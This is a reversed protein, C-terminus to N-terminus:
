IAHFLEEKDNEITILMQRAKELQRQQAQHMDNTSGAFQRRAWREPLFENLLIMCWRIGILPYLLKLRFTFEPDGSFIDLCGSLFKKKLDMSLDMGPHLLFDSVLRVPDDWGFYEFDLFVVSGDPKKLANHFGFDSPSLTRQTPSIDHEFSM